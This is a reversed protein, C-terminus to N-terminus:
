VSPPRPCPGGEPVGEALRHCADCLTVADAPDYKEEVSRDTLHHADLPVLPWYATEPAQRDYGRRGCATCCYGDRTMVARRFAARVARKATM